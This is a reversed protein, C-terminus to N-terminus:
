RRGSYLGGSKTVKIDQFEPAKMRIEFRFGSYSGLPNWTFNMEWCHLDRFVSIQPALVEKTEFDYSGRLTFKWNKSISFGLDANISSYSDSKTPYPKSLNYSYSLNLNWPITLDPAPAEDYMSVYKSKNEFKGESEQERAQEQKKKVEDEDSKLREGSLSTSVSFNFNTLRILGKGSSVLYKNLKSDGDFDYFTYSSSGSFSLLDGIQTRYSINLDSLKNKEAAFNYNFSADLNLLQIKKQEKTTDGPTKAMKIEFVNDLSFNLSQSEGSGVAGFVESSFKDYFVKEGNLNVYSDYYNWKEKSFDPRYSYSISPQLIHRFSEVGLVNPNMIGYLKTSASVSMDFTRVSSLENIRETVIEDKLTIAGTKPDKVEFTRKEIKTRKNYWKENYSIRPSINFYGIKPSVSLSINHNAGAKVDMSDDTISRNNTLQGSYSFALQEYWKQNLESGNGNRKFPYIINQSYSLNPLSEEIKNDSLYQVRSYNLSLSSNEWIKNFSAASTIQQSLLTNYDISNRDLFSKSVFQMNASLNMSPDIQQYHSWALRWDSENSQAEDPDTLEGIKIRSYGVELNGNFDYRKAYRFRSRAGYGGKTYYDGNFTLDMYDNMAWFYGFNYFYHGRRGDQGYSPIIIGSRRGSENPFVAFPLPIPIPVGGIHMFIWRAIIKDKQIVKMSSATFHTHPTDSACTTFMGNEIFYTDKDVKKVKEGEYRQDTEKNKAVSIFGRQTKFNYKISTGEYTEGGEKLQPTDMLKSKANKATDPVGFAELDNTNYDVFIEGSKLETQKYKLEGSGHLFMKKEKVKFILSDSASANVIADVESKKTKSSDTVTSDSKAVQLSDKKLIATSDKQQAFISATLFLIVVWVYKM